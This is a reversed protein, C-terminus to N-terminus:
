AEGVLGRERLSTVQQMLQTDAIQERLGPRAELCAAWAAQMFGEPDVEHEVCLAAAALLLQEVRSSWAPVAAPSPSAETSPAQAEAASDDLHRHDLM